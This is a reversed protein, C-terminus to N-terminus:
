RLLEYGKRKKLKQLEFLANIAEEETNFWDSRKKGTSGVRGWERVLAWDQFLTQVVSLSYFRYQNKEKNVRELYVYM